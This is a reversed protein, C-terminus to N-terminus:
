TTIEEDPYEGYNDIIVIKKITKMQKTAKFAAIATFAASKAAKMTEAHYPHYGVESNLYVRVEFRKQGHKM